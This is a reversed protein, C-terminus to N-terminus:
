TRRLEQMMAALRQISDHTADAPQVGTVPSAYSPVVLGAPTVAEGRANVHLAVPANTPRAATA